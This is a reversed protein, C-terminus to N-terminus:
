RAGAFARSHLGFYVGMMWDGRELLNAGATGGFAFWPGSWLEGRVRADVVGRSVSVTSSTECGHYTSDFNYMRSRVGGALEVAVTGRGLAARTGVVGYGGVVLGGHQELQPSGFTGVASTEMSAVGGLIGGIEGELMGYIGHRNIMGLRLSTTVMTEDTRAPMVVRYAFSEDGHTVEGSTADLGSPAQRVNTGLEIFIRPLVLNLHWAGFRSCKRIGHIDESADCPPASPESSSYSGSDSYNGGSSGSSSSSSGSSGGGGGGGGHCTSGAYAASSSLLCLAAIVIKM